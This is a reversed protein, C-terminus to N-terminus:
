HTLVFMAVFLATIVWTGVNVEKAKGGCVKMVVYSLLGFAIGYSINYTFPMMAITLFAPLAIAPDSWEIDKVCAIMLIGVYVLAASYACGPILAAVPALFMAIFFMAATVM